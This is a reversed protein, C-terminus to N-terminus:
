QGAPFGFHSSMNRVAIDNGHELVNEQYLSTAQSDHWIILRWHGCIKRVCYGNRRLMWWLWVDDTAPCLRGFLEEDLVEPAFCRPPYLVGGVGTMFNLPHASEDTLRLNWEMYRLPFGRPGVRIRHARHCIVERSGPTWAHALEELWTPHYYCDDDATAWFVDAHEELAPIIKKYSRIDRCPRIQLGFKKLERVEEPLRPLDSTAIWLIVGDPVCSQMLLCKLTPALTAFRPAYSTLSVFLPAPLPNRRRFAFRRWSKWRSWKSDVWQQLKKPDSNSSKPRGPFIRKPFSLFLM